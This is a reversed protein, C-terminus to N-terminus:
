LFATNVGRGKERCGLGAPPNRAGRSLKANEGRTFTASDLCPTTPSPKPLGRAPKEGFVLILKKVIEGLNSSM